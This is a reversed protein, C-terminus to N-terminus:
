ARQAKTKEDQFHSLVVMHWVSHTHLNLLFFIPLAKLM